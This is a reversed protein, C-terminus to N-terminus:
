PPQLLAQWEVADNDLFRYAAKAARNSGCAEPVNATPKAYFLGTMQLWRATLRTDGLNAGGREAEIWDRPPRAPAVTRIHVQGDAHRCLTTQWARDLPLM